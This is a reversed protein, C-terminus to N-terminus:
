GNRNRDELYDQWTSYVKQSTLSETDGLKAPIAQIMLVQMAPTLEAIDAPAVDYHALIM